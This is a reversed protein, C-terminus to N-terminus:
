LAEAIAFSRVSFSILFHQKYFPMFFCSGKESLGTQHSFCYVSLLNQAGSVKLTGVWYNIIGQAKKLVRTL